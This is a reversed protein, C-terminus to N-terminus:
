PKINNPADFTYEEPGWLEQGNQDNACATGSCM